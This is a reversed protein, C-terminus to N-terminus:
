SIRRGARLKSGGWVGLPFLILLAFAFWHPQIGWFWYTSVVGMIEGFIILGITATGASAGAIAACLYGGGMSYLTDTGTVVVYYYLPLATMSRFGTVAVAFIQDTLVVLIGIAVYGALVAGVIRGM